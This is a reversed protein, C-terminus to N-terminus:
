ADIIRVHLEKRSLAHAVKNAKRPHYNFKFDYDKIFNM